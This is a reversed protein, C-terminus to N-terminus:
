CAHLLFSSQFHCKSRLKSKVKRIVHQRRMGITDKTFAFLGSRKNNQEDKQGDINIARFLENEISFLDNTTVFKARCFLNTRIYASLALFDGPTLFTYALKRQKKEFMPFVTKRFGFDNSQHPTVTISLDSKVIEMNETEESINSNVQSLLM